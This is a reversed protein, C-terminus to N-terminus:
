FPPFRFSEPSVDRMPLTLRDVATFAMASLTRLVRRVGGVTPPTTKPSPTTNM